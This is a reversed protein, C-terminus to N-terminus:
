IRKTVNRIGPQDPKNYALCLISRLTIYNKWYHFYKQQMSLIISDTLPKSKLQM